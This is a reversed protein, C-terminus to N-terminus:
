RAVKSTAKRSSIRLWSEYHPYALIRKGQPVDGAALFPNINGTNGVEIADRLTVANQQTPGNPDDATTNVNMSVLGANVVKVEQPALEFVPSFGYENIDNQETDTPTTAWCYPASVEIEYSAPNPLPFGVPISYNYGQTASNTTTSGYTSWTQGGNLSDLLKVTAGVYGMENNDLSGDGNNDLWVQGTVTATGSHGGGGSGSGSGSGSSGGSGSGSGTMPQANELSSHPDDHATTTAGSGSGSGSANGAQPVAAGSSTNSANPNIGLLHDWQQEVSSEVQAIEQSLANFARSLDQELTAVFQAQQEMVSVMVM